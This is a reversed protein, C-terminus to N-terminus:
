SEVIVAEFSLLSTDKANLKRIHEGQKVNNGYSLLNNIQGTSFPFFQTSSLM